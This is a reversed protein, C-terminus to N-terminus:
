IEKATPELGAVSQPQGPELEAGHAENPDEHTDLKYEMARGQASAAALDGAEPRHVDQEDPMSHVAGRRSGLPASLSHGAATAPASTTM